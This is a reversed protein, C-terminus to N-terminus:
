RLVWQHQKEGSQVFGEWCMESENWKASLPVVNELMSSLTTRVVFEVYKKAYKDLPKTELLKDRLLKRIGIERIELLVM